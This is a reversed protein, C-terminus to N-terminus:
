GKQQGKKVTRGVVVVGWRKWGTRSLVDDDSSDSIGTQELDGRTEQLFHPFNGKPTM